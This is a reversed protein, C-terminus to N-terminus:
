SKKGEQVPKFEFNGGVTVGSVTNNQIQNIINQGGPQEKLQNLFDQALKVIEPDDNVKANEVEEQLTAKRGESDPKKELQEVANVVDSQDGFKKKLAAKLADYGDKIVDKAMPIALATVFATTIPDM